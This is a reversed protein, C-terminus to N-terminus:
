ENGREQTPICIFRKLASVNLVQINGRLLKLWGQREFEKLQRSIVERASGLETALDHHTIHITLNDDIYHLLAKALRADIRGFSIEEVLSIIESLRQSHSDFVQKRFDASYQLGQNFAALPILLAKVETESIGEAPYKNNAFLCAVTLTCSQGRQVRYLVIERGNEARALVKVSGELVLFYNQCSDGQKFIITDAPMLVERAQKLISKGIDDQIDAFPTTKNTFSEIM